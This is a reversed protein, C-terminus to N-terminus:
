NLYMALAFAETFEPTNTLEVYEAEVAIRKAEERQEQSVLAMRAGMGAANGVQVFRDLPLTPFMGIAVASAVDIYSGFAGAIVVADIDSESIGAKELLINLGARMAGKALQIEGIDGRTVIIERGASSDEKEVLVFERGNATERVRPHGPKIAGRRDVVGHKFLQAVADLIGSGCIGIPAVDGITQYVIQEDDLLIREIAGEAARMGDRIHAGEFAPGSATSCTLLRGNAWLAVETNTGIDLGAVVRNDKYIGTALLMAVHDAGVFGAINPLLHVYAGPALHLGLDRAKVDMAASVAAVYPALGLQRVPLGAFLHHMATNGVIVADTVAQPTTDVEACMEGIMGDFAERVVRALTEAKEPNEMAYSIRAMVDEGYAIQPNMVGRSALLQGTKLDILYGAMKTTGLDSAFGLQRQARPAWDILESQRLVAIGSWHNERLRNSMIQATNFDIASLEIGYRQRLADAVRGADSRIDEKTPPALDLAYGAVLPDVAVEVALSEVQIRQTATLSRAPVHIKLSSLAVAQCALRYGNEIESASLVEIETGSLASVEGERIQVKCQGCTGVGGCVAALQVGARRAIELITLGPECLARRGIPEFDVQCPM